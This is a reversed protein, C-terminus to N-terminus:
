LNYLLFDKLTAKLISDRGLGLGSKRKGLSFLSAGLPQPGPWLRKYITHSLPLEVATGSGQEGVWERRSVTYDWCYSCIPPFSRRGPTCHKCPGLVQWFAPQRAKQWSLAEPTLASCDHGGFWACLISRSLYHNRSSEFGSGKWDSREKQIQIPLLNLRPKIVQKAAFSFPGRFNLLTFDCLHM